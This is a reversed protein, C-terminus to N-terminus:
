LDIRWRYKAATPAREIGFLDVDVRPRAVSHHGWGGREALEADLVWGSAKLSAGPESQLTYTYLRRYGLAKAARKCSGYLMSCANRTGDTCVRWVELTAGDHLARAIPYGVIAVGRVNGTEDVCGVQFVSTKAPPLNHRHLDGVFRRARDKTVPALTLPEPGAGVPAVVTPAPGRANASRAADSTAAM